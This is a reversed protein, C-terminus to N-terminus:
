SPRDDKRRAASRHAILLHLARTPEADPALLVPAAGKTDRARELVAFVHREVRERPPDQGDWVLQVGAAGAARAGLALETLHRANGATVQIVAVTGALGRESLAALRKRTRLRVVRAAEVRPALEAEAAAVASAIAREIRRALARDAVEIRVSASLRPSAAAKKAKGTM